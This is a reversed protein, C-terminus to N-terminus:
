LDKVIFFISYLVIFSLTFRVIRCYACKSRVAIVQRRVEARFNAIRRNEDELGFEPITLKVYFVGSDSGEQKQEKCEMM